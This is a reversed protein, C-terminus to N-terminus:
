GRVHGDLKRLQLLFAGGIAPLSVMLSFRTATVPPVGMWLAASITSASRSLGPWPAIGQAAGIAIADRWRVVALDEFWLKSDKLNSPDAGAVITQPRRLAFMTTALAAATGLFGIGVLLPVHFAREAADKISFGIIATPISAVVILGIVRRALAGEATPKVAVLLGILERRFHIMVALMTAVHVLVEFFLGGTQEDSGGGLLLAGLALHGDSSVPLFETIGQILGLIVATLFSM